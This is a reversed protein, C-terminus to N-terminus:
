PFQVACEVLIAILFGCVSDPQQNEGACPYAFHETGLPRV